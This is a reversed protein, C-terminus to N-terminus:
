ICAVLPRIETAIHAVPTGGNVIVNDLTVDPWEACASRCPQESVRNSARFCARHHVAQHQRAAGAADLWVRVQQMHQGFQRLTSGVRVDAIEQREVEVRLFGQPVRLRLIRRVRGSVPFHM